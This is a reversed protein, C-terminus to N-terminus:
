NVKVKKSINLIIKGDRILNFEGQYVGKPLPNTRNSKGGSLHRVVYGRDFNSNGNFIPTIGDPSLIKINFEDGKNIGAVYINYLFNKSNKSIKNEYLQYEVANRNLKISSFGANIIFSPQHKLTKIAADNWYSEGSKGCGYGAVRGSYPDIIKRGQRLEFHLHPYESLGSLGVQALKQGSKVIDGINVLLSNRKLHAYITIYGNDHKIAVRNGYGRNTVVEYTVLQSSVDPMKDRIDIVKGAAAAFVDVGAEMERYSILRIDTGQHGDTSLSGCKFDNNNKSADMDVYKQVFCTEGSICDIPTALNIRNDALVINNIFIMLTIITIFIIFSHRMINKM